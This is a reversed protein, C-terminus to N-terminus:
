QKQAHARVQRTPSLCHVDAARSPQPFCKSGAVAPVIATPPDDVFKSM